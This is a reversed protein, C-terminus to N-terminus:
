VPTIITVDPCISNDIIYQGNVLDNNDARDIAESETRAIGAQLHRKILRKRTVEFNTELFWIEDMYNALECWVEDKLALYNGELIIIDTDKSIKIDNEVPDKISHDFSPAYLDRDRLQPSKLSKVLQLFKSANFTFPAGRRRVAEESNPMSILESRYSHFGDQPLNITPYKQQNLQESLKTSLTTKGSGPVGAIGIILREDKPKSGCLCIIRDVLQDIDNISYENKVM